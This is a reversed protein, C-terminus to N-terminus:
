IHITVWKGLDNLGLMNGLTYLHRLLNCFILLGSRQKYQLIGFSSNDLTWVQLIRGKTTFKANEIVFNLLLFNGRSYKLYFNKRGKWLNQERKVLSVEIVMYLQNSHEEIVMHLKHGIRGQNLKTQPILISFCSEFTILSDNVSVSHAIDQFPITMRNHTYIKTLNNLMVM